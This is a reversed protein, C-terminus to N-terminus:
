DIVALQQEFTDLLIEHPSFRTARGYVTQRSINILIQSHQILRHSYAVTNRTNAISELM